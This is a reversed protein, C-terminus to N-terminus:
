NKRSQKERRARLPPPEPHRAGTLGPLPGIPGLCIVEGLPEDDDRPQCELATVRVDLLDLADAAMRGVCVMDPKNLSLESRIDRVIMKATVPMKPSVLPCPWNFNHLNKGLDFIRAM